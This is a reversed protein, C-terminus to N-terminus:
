SGGVRLLATLKRTDDLQELTNVMAILEVVQRDDLLGKAATRLKEEIEGRSLPDAPDGKASARKDVHVAGQRTRIEVTAATGQLAPDASVRVRERIFADVAPDQYRNPEFQDLWCRRDHIIIGTVYPASLLAKFKDNWPLTGHMDYVGKSLGINVTAIDDPKLDHTQVLAFLATMATQISSAAPWLRLAIGNLM